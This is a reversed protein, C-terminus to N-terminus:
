NVSQSYDICLRCEDEGKVVVVQSRWPSISEEIIDNEQLQEIEKLKFKTEEKSYKRSPTKIPTTNENIWPFLTPFQVNACVLSMKRKIPSGFSLEQQTGGFALTISQHQRLVGLGVIVDCVLNNVLTFQMGKWM